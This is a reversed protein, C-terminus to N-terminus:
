FWGETYPTFLMNNSFHSSAPFFQAIDSSVRYPSLAESAQPKLDLAALGVLIPGDMLLLKTEQRIATQLEVGLAQPRARLDDLHM